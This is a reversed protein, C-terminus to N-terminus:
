PAFWAHHCPFSSFLFLFPFSLSLFPFPSLPFLSADVHLPLLLSTILLERSSSSKRWRIDLRPRSWRSCGVLRVRHRAHVLQATSVTPPSASDWATVPRCTTRVHLSSISFEFLTVTQKALSTLQAWFLYGYFLLRQSASRWGMRIEGNPIGASTQPSGGPWGASRRRWEVLRDRPTAPVAVSVAGGSEAKDGWGRVDRDREREHMQCGFAPRHSVTESNSLHQNHRHSTPSHGSCGFLRASVTRVPPSWESPKPAWLRVRHELTPRWV